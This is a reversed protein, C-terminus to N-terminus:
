NKPVKLCDAMGALQAGRASAYNRATAEADQAYYERYESVDTTKYEGLAQRWREVSAIKAIGSGTSGESLAWQYAHYLEHCLVNLCTDRNGAQIVTHSIRIRRDANEYLGLVVSTEKQDQFVEEVVTVPELGLYAAEWFALDNLSRIREEDSLSSFVEEQFPSLVEWSRDLLYEKQGRDALAGAEQKRSWAQGGAYVLSLVLLGLFVAMQFKRLGEKGERDKGSLYRYLLWVGYVAAGAFVAAAAATWVGGLCFMRAAGYLCLPFAAMLAMGPGSLYAPTLCIYYLVNLFFATLYWERLVRVSVCIGFVEAYLPAPHSRFFIWGAYAWIATLVAFLVPPFLKEQPHFLIRLLAGAAPEDEESLCYRRLAKEVGGAECSATQDDAAKKIIEEANEMAIGIGAKQIMTLDNESDGIALVEKLPIGRERCIWELATGKDASANTIEINGGGGSVATLEPMEKLKELLEERCHEQGAPFNVAIKQVTRGAASVYEALDPVWHRTEWIYARVADAYGVQNVYAKRGEEMWGQGDIFADLLVPMRGALRLLQAATEAPMGDEYLCRGSEAEYVAAGNATIYCSIGSIERICAPIGCLPRGTAPIVFIGKQIAEEIAKRNGEPMRKERDLVTGDLDLGILRIKRTV